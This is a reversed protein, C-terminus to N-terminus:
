LLTYTKVKTSSEVVVAIGDSAKEDTIPKPSTLVVLAEGSEITKIAQAHAAPVLAVWALLVLVLWVLGRGCGLRIKRRVALAIAPDAARARIVLAIPLVPPSVATRNAELM